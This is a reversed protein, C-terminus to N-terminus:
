KCQDSEHSHSHCVEGTSVLTGNLYAEAAAKAPGVIGVIVEIDNENFIDIAGGGMGGAIIVKVGKEALFVPLFGPRHGPNPVNDEAVIKGCELDYLRFNECHGFHAAVEENMCAVAIKM